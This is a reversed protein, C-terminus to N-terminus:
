FSLGVNLFSTYESDTSGLEQRAAIEAGITFRGQRYVGNLGVLLSNDTAEARLQEGSVQTTTTAGSVIREYDVSARLTFEGDGWPRTTDAQVGLGVLIRDADSFSVRADETDTFRDVSVLSGVVWVRPTVHMQEGMALRRGAELDLAYARGNVGGRLLGRNTSAFDLNYGMYSFCGVAYAGNAGTWVGGVTSGLGRADIEGGGTPSTGGATGRVYRVSAWGKVRENLSASLGGEAEFRDFDYTAGTTSRDAQYSGQGGAFRTWVPSAPTSRCNRSPGQGSLRLLFDPALEYLAARPAYEEMFMPQEPEPETCNPPIGVQGNPCSPPPPITCNPPTGIQGEPCMPPPPPPPPPKRRENFDKASFGRDAVVVVGPTPESDRWNPQTRDVAVGEERMRVNWAGNSARRGTVGMAGDHLVTGNVAITTEGGDNIIWDDGIAQAVRRGGLNMDVRLKPMIIPDGPNAGPTDGTALIAIGSDSAISGGPGIVVRGGGALYVGEEASTVSGNVTVTQRRYGDAGIAAVRAPAGSSVRGVRVGQAGMGSADVSGGDILVDMAGMGSEHGAVVGHAGAGTTTIAHSELIAIDIDGVTGTNLGLVGYSNVGMTTISGGRVDIDINGAGQHVGAVGVSYTDRYTPDIDTSQTEITVNEVDIDLLGAGEHRGYVGHAVLGKTTISGGQVNVLIDGTGNQHRTYIGHGQDGMSTFDINGAYVDIDGNNSHM